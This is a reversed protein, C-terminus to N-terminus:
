FVYIIVKVNNSHTEARWKWLFDTKAAKNKLINKSVFQYQYHFYIGYMFVRQSGKEYNHNLPPIETM